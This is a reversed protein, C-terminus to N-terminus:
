ELASSCQVSCQLIAAALHSPFPLPSAASPNQWTMDNWTVSIHDTPRVQLLVARGTVLM